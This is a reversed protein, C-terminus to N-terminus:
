TQKRKMKKQVSNEKKQHVKLMDPTEIVGSNFRLNNVLQQQGNDDYITINLGTSM